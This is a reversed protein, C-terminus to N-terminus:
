LSFIRPPSWHTGRKTEVRHVEHGVHMQRFVVFLEFRGLDTKGVFVVVGFAAVVEILAIQLFQHERVPETVVGDHHVFVV